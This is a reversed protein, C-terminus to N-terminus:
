NPLPGAALDGYSSDPRSDAVIAVEVLAFASMMQTRADGVPGLAGIVNNTMRARRGHTESCRM